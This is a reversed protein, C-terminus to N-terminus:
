TGDFDRIADLFPQGWRRMRTAGVGHLALLDAETSPWHAAMQVLTRDPFIVYPPVGAQDALEKRVARLYEFLPIRGRYGSKNCKACGKAQYIQRRSGTVRIVREPPQVARRCHTCLRRVFRQAVVCRLPRRWCPGGRQRDM